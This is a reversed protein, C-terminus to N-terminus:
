SINKDAFSLNFGGVQIYVVVAKWAPKVDPFYKSHIIFFTIFSRYISPDLLRLKTKKNQQENIVKRKWKEIESLTKEGTDIDDLKVSKVKNFLLM